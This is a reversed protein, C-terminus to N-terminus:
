ADHIKIWDIAILRHIWFVIDGHTIHKNVYNQNIITKKTNIWYSIMPKQLQQTPFKENNNIEM